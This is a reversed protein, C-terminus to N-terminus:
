AEGASVEPKAEFLRRVYSQKFRRWVFFLVLVLVAAGVSSFAITSYLADQGSGLAAARAAVAAMEVEGAISVVSDAEAVVSSNGKRVAIEAQALLPAAVNLRALLGTVNARAQEADLVARFAQEVANSATELRSEVQDEQSFAYRMKSACSGVMLVISLFVFFLKCSGSM